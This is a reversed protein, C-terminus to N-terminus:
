ITMANYFKTAQVSLNKNILATNESQNNELDKIQLWTTNYSQYVWTFPTAMFTSSPDREVTLTAYVLTPKSAIRFSNKIESNQLYFCFSHFLWICVCTYICVAQSCACFWAYLNVLICVCVGGCSYMCTHILVLYTRVCPCVRVCKYMCAYSFRCIYVKIYFICEYSYSFVTVYSFAHPCICAHICLYRRLCLRIQVFECVYVWATM